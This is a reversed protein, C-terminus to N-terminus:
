TLLLGQRKLLTIVRVGKVRRFNLYPSHNVARRVLGVGKEVNVALGCAVALMM